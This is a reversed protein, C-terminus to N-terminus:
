PCPRTADYPARTGPPVDVGNVRLTNGQGAPHAYWASAFPLEPGLALAYTSNRLYPLSALGLGVTHRSLSVLLDAQCSATFTNGSATVTVDGRLPAGAVPFGAEVILGFRNNSSRNRTVTVAVNGQTGPAGNGLAGIRYGAGVPVRQHGSVDNNDIVVSTASLGPPVVQTLGPPLPLVLAPLVLVGPIGGDLLTNSRVVFTTGPGNICIDCTGGPGSSYNREVLAGGSRVDVRETFNGEFSNGVVELGTARLSMVGVGATATASDASGTRFVFGEIRADNGLRDGDADVVILPESYRSENPAGRGLALAPSATLVTARAGASPGTARGAASLRMEYAGLLSISPMDITLPLQEVASDAPVGTTGVYTGPSVLISIRCGGAAAGAQRRTARAQALADTIRRFVVGPTRTIERDVLLRAVYGGRATLEGLRSLPLESTTTAGPECVVARPEVDLPAEPDQCAAIACAVIALPVARIVHLPRM